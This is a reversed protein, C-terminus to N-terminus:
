NINIPFEQTIGVHDGTCVYQQAAAEIGALLARKTRPGINSGYTQKVVDVKTIKGNQITYSVVILGKVPENTAVELSGINSCVGAV